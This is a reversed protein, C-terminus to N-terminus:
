HLGWSGAWALASLFNVTGASAWYMVMVFANHDTICICWKVALIIRQILDYLDYRVGGILFIISCIVTLMKMLTKLKGASNEM